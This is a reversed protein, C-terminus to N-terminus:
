ICQLQDPNPFSGCRQYNVGDVGTFVPCLEGVAEINLLFDVEGDAKILKKIKGLIDIFNEFYLCMSSERKCKDTFCRVTELEHKLSSQVEASALVAKAKKGDKEVVSNRLITIAERGAPSLPNTNRELFAEM